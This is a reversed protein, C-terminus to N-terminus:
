RIVRYIESMPLLNRAWPGPEPWWLLWNASFQRSMCRFSASTSRCADDITHVLGAGDYSRGPGWEEAPGGTLFPGGAEGNLNMVLPKGIRHGDRELLTTSLRFITVGSWQSTLDPLRKSWSRCTPNHRPM